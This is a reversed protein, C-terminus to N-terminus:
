FGFGREYLTHFHKFSKGEEVAMDVAGFTADKLVSAVAQPMPTISSAVNIPVTVMKRALDKVRDRIRPLRHQQPSLPEAKSSPLDEDDTSDFDDSIPDGSFSEKSSYFQLGCKRNKVNQLDYRLRTDFVFAAVQRDFLLLGNLPVLALRLMVIYLPINFCRLRCAYNTNKESADRSMISEPM